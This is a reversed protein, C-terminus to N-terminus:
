LSTVHYSTIHSTQSQNFLNLVKGKQKYLLQLQQSGYLRHAHGKYIFCMTFVTYLLQLRQSGYLRHAHGKYIFCMTFVAHLSYPLAM